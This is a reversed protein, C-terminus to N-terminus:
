LHHMQYFDTGGLIAEIICVSISSLPISLMGVGGTKYM